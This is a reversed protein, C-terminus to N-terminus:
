RIQEEAYAFSDVIWSVRQQVPRQIDSLKSKLFNRRSHRVGTQPFRPSLPIIRQSLLMKYWSGVPNCAPAERPSYRKETARALLKISCASENGVAPM